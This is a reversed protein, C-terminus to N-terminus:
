GYISALFACHILNTRKFICCNLRGCIRAVWPFKSYAEQRVRLEISKNRSCYKVIFKNSVIDVIIISFM